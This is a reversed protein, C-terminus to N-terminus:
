SLVDNIDHVEIPAIRDLLLMIRVKPLLLIVSQIETIRSDIYAGENLIIM